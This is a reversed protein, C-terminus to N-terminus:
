PPVFSPDWMGPRSPMTVHSRLPGHMVPKKKEIHEFLQQAISHSNQRRTTAHKDMEKADGHLQKLARIHRETAGSPHPGGYRKGAAPDRHANACVSFVLGAESKHLLRYLVRILGKAAHRVITAQEHKTRVHGKALVSPANGVLVDQRLLQLLLLLEERLETLKRAYQERMPSTASATEVLQGTNDRGLDFLVLQIRTDLEDLSRYLGTLFFVNLMEITGETRSEHGFASEGFASLNWAVSPRQQRVSTADAAILRAKMDWHFFVQTALYWAEDDLLLGELRAATGSPNLANTLQFQRKAFVVQAYLFQVLEVVRDVDKVTPVQVKLIDMGEEFAAHLDGKLKTYGKTYEGYLDAFRASKAIQRMTKFQPRTEVYNAGQAIASVYRARASFMAYGFLMQMFLRAKYTLQSPQQRQLHQKLLATPAVAAFDRPPVGNNIQKLLEAVAQLEARLKTAYYPSAEGLPSNANHHMAARGLERNLDDDLVDLHKNVVGYNKVFKEKKTPLQSKASVWACTGRLLALLKYLGFLYAFHPDRTDVDITNRQLLQTVTSILRTERMSKLLRQKAAAYESPSTGDAEILATSGDRVVDSQLLDRLLPAHRRDVYDALYEDLSVGLAQYSLVHHLGYQFAGRMLTRVHTGYASPNMTVMYMYMTMSNLQMHLRQPDGRVHEGRQGRPLNEKIYVWVMDNQPRGRQWQEYAVHRAPDRPLRSLEVQRTLQEASDVDLIRRITATHMRLLETSDLARANTEATALWFWAADDARWLEQQRQESEVDVVLELGDAELEIMLHEMLSVLTERIQRRGSRPLYERMKSSQPRTAIRSPAPEEHLTLLDSGLEAGDYEDM